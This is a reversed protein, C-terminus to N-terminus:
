DDLDEDSELEDAPVDRSPAPAFSIGLIVWLIQTQMEQFDRRLLEIPENPSSILRSSRAGDGGGIGGGTGGTGGAPRFTDRGDVLPTPLSSLLASYMRVLRHLYLLMMMLIDTHGVQNDIELLTPDDAPNIVPDRMLLYTTVEDKDNSSFESNDSEDDEEDVDSM